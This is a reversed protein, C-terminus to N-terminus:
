IPRPDHTTPRPRNRRGRVMFWWSRVVFVLPVAAFASFYPMFPWLYRVQTDLAASELVFAGVLGSVLVHPRGLRRQFALVAGSVLALWVTANHIVAQPSPLPTFLLKVLEFISQVAYQVPYQRVFAVGVDGFCQDMDPTAQCRPQYRWLYRVMENVHFDWILNDEYSPGWQFRSMPYVLQSLPNGAIWLAAVVDDGYAVLPQAARPARRVLNVGVRSTLSARGTAELNRVLWPAVVVTFGVCLLALRAWRGRGSPFQGTCALLILVAPLLGTAVARLLAALGFGLGTALYDSSQGLRQARLALAVGIVLLLAFAVETLLWHAYHASESSLGFMAGALLGVNAGFLRAGVLTTLGAALALLLIQAVVVADVNPGLLRYFAATVLPYVPERYLTPL